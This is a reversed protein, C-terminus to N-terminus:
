EYQGPVANIGIRADIMGAIRKTLSIMELFNKYTSLKDAKGDFGHGISLAMRRLKRIAKNMKTFKMDPYEIEYLHDSAGNAWLQIQRMLQTQLHNKAALRAEKSTVLKEKDIIVGSLCSNLHTNGYRAFLSETGGNSSLDKIISNLQHICETHRNDFHAAFYVLQQVLGKGFESANKKM